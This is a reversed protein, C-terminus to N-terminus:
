IEAGPSQGHDGQKIARSRGKILLGVSILFAVLALGLGYRILPPEHKFVVEHNGAPVPVARFMTLVRTVALPKGDVTATWGPAFADTIVLWGAEQCTTHIAVQNYGYHVIEAKGRVKSPLKAADGPTITEQKLIDLSQPDTLLFARPMCHPNAYIRVTSEFVLPLDDLRDDKPIVIYRVGFLNLLDPDYRGHRLAMVSHPFYPTRSDSPIMAALFDASHKPFFGSEYGCVSHIRFPTLTNPSYGGLSFVREIGAHQQLFTIAPTRPYLTEPKVTPNWRITFFLLEAATVFLLPWIPKRVMFLLAALGLTLSPVVFSPNGWCYTRSFAELTKTAYEIHNGEPAPLRIWGMALGNNVLFIGSKMFMNMKWFGYGAILVAPIAIARHRARQMEEFGFAACLVMCFHFIALLRVTHLRDVGPLPQIWSYVETAPLLLVTLGVVTAFRPIGSRTMGVLALPLTVSGAYVVTEWFAFTGLPIRQFCFNTIPSGAMEPWAFTPLVTSLFQRHVTLVFDPSMKPRASDFMHVAMPLYIPCVLCVGLIAGLAARGTGRLCRHQWMIALGFLLVTLLGNLVYQTHGSLIFAATALALGPVHRLGKRCDDTLILLGPVWAAPQLSDGLEMNATVFGGLMWTTGLFLSALGSLGLRRGLCSMSFGAVFLQGVIMLGTATPTPFLWLLLLRPPSFFGVLGNAILPSGGLNYPKWWPLEGGALALRTTEYNPYLSVTPDFLDANQPQCIGAESFLPTSYLVSPDYYVRGALLPFMLPCALLAFWLARYRWQLAITELRQTVTM